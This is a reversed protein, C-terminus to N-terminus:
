DNRFTANGVEDAYEVAKSGDEAPKNAGVHTLRLAYPRDGYRAEEILVVDVDRANEYAHELHLVFEEVSENTFFTNVVHGDRTSHVVVAGILLEM